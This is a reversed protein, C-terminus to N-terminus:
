KINVDDFYLGEDIRPEYDIKDSFSYFAEYEILPVGIPDKEVIVNMADQLFIRRKLPDMETSASLILQDVTLNEYKGYNFEAKSYAIDKM